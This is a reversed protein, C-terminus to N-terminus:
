AGKVRQGNIHEVTDTAYGIADNIQKLQRHLNDRVPISKEEVLLKIIERSQQLLIEYQKFSIGDRYSKIGPLSLMHSARERLEARLEKECRIFYRRVKRGIENNEIMALEKAMDLTLQYDTRRKGPSGGSRNSLNSYYDEGEIFSYEEIRRTIWDNFRTEVKMIEHLDRANCLPTSEDDVEAFFLPILQNESM